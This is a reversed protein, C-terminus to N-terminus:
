FTRQSHRHIGTFQGFQGVLSPRPREPIVIMSRRIYVKVKHGFLEYNVM